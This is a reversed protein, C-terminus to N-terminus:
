KAYSIIKGLVYEYDAKECQPVVWFENSKGAILTHIDSALGAGPNKLWTCNVIDCRARAGAKNLIASMAAEVEDDGSGFLNENWNATAFNVPAGKKSRVTGSGFKISSSLNAGNELLYRRAKNLSFDEYLLRDVIGALKGFVKEVEAPYDMANRFSQIRVETNGDASVRFINVARDNAPRSRVVQEDGENVKSVQVMYTRVDVFKATFTNGSPTQEIRAEVLQLGPAAEVIRPTDMADLVNMKTLRKRLSQANTLEGAETRTTRYLFVHQRGFEEADRLLQLIDGRDLDGNDLYPKLRDDRMSEWSTASYSLGRKKLFTSVANLSSHKKLLRIASNLEATSLKQTM